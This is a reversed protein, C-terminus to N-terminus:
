RPGVSIGWIQGGDQSNFEWTQGADASKYLGGNLTGAFIFSPDSPLIALSHVDLNRFGSIHQQWSMGGNVSRYVGGGHTGAFVIQPNKPNVALTYVTLHGLGNNVARWSKGADDSRFVGHDETGTLWINRNTPHQVITRIGKGSLGLRKWNNGEDISEFIGDETAALLRKPNSNDIFVDSTFPLDPLGSNREEWTEGRDDTRYIGYATAAVVSAPNRPDIRLKLVETIEWGTTIIFSVGNDDSRLVGNGCGAWIVGDPGTETYFTRIYGRWGLHEWNAGKDRSRFIGIVPNDTRGWQHRQSSLVSIYITDTSKETDAPSILFLMLLALLKSFM